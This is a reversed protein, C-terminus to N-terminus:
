RVIEALYSKITDEFSIAHGEAIEEVGEWLLKAEDYSIHYDHVIKKIFEEQKLGLYNKM